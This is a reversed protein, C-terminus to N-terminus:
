LVYGVCDQGVLCWIMLAELRLSVRGGLILPHTTRPRALRLM